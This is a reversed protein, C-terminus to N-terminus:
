SSSCCCFRGTTDSQKGGWLSCGPLGTPEERWSIRRTLISFHTAMGDEHPLNDWRFLEGGFSNEELAERIAWNTFFGDATCSIGTRNRPWSSGSSFPCAVLKLTRPSGQHSLQYLILRCRPLSPNSGQTPFIGQHLFLSGMGTNQGLSNWPSYLGPPQWSDCM